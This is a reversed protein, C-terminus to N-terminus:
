PTDHIDIPIDGGAEWGIWNDKEIHFTMERPGAIYLTYTYAIGPEWSPISPLYVKDDPTETSPVTVDPHGSGPPYTITYTAAVYARNAAPNEQPILMLYGASGPIDLSETTSLTFSSSAPLITYGDTGGTLGGNVDWNNEAKNDKDSSNTVSGSNFTYTGSRCLGGYHFELRTITVTAPEHSKQAIAKFGIRSLVHDFKFTVKDSEGTLNYKADVILDTQLRSNPSM